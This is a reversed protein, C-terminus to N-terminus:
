LEFRLCFMLTIFLTGLIKMSLISLQLAKQFGCVGGNFSEMTGYLKDSSLSIADVAVDAIQDTTKMCTAAIVKFQSRDNVQIM